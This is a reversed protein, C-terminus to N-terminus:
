ATAETNQENMTVMQTTATQTPDAIMPRMNSNTVRSLEHMMRQEMQAMAALLQRQNEMAEEKTVYGSLDIKPRGIEELPIETLQFANLECKGNADISKSYAYPANTDFFIGNEGPNMRYAKVEEIGSVYEFFTRRPPQGQMMQPNTMQSQGMGNQYGWGQQSTQPYQYYPSNYGYGYYPNQNFM